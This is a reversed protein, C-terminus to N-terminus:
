AIGRDHVMVDAGRPEAYAHAERGATALTEHSCIIRGVETEVLWGGRPDSAVHVVSAAVPAKTPFLFAPVSMLPCTVHADDLSDTTWTLLEPNADQIPEPVTVTVAVRPGNRENILKVAIGTVAREAIATVGAVGETGLPIACCNLAVTVNTSLVM